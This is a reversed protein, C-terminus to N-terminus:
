WDFATCVPGCGSTACDHAAIASAVTGEATYIGTRLQRRIKRLEANTLPEKRWTPQVGSSENGNGTM